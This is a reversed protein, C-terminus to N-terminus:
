LDDTSRMIHFQFHQTLFDTIGAALLDGELSFYTTHFRLLPQGPKIRMIEAIDEEAEVATLESRARIHAGGQTQRLYDIISGDLNELNHLMEQNGRIYDRSLMCPNRDVAELTVVQIVQHRKRVDLIQAVDEPASTFSVQKKLVRAKKGARKALLRLPTLTELGGTLGSDHSKTIFTGVGHKRLLVGHNELYSLAERVTVRSVSFEAALQEV